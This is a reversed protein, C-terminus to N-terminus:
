YVSRELAIKRASGMIYYCGMRPAVAIAPVLLKPSIYMALGRM